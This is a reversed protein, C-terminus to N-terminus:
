LNYTLFYLKLTWNKNVLASGHHGCLSVMRGELARYIIDKWEHLIPLSYNGMLFDYLTEARDEMSSLFYRKGILQSVAIGHWVSSKGMKMQHYYVSFKVKASFLVGRFSIGEGLTLSSGISRVNQESREFFSLLVFSDKGAYMGYDLYAQAFKNRLAADQVREVSEISM